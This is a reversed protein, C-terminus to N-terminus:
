GAARQKREVLAAIDAVTGFHEPVIEERALSIGYRQELHLIMSVLAVSDLIGSDLLNVDPGVAEPGEGPLLAEAVYGRIEDQITM